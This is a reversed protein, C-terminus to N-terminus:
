EAGAPSPDGRGRMVTVSSSIGRAESHCTDSRELLRGNAVAAAIRTANTIANSADAELLVPDAPKGIEATGVEDGLGTAKLM